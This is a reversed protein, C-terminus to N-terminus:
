QSDRCPQAEFHVSRRSRRSAPIMSGNYETLFRAECHTAVCVEQAPDDGYLSLSESCDGVVGPGVLARRHSRTPSCCMPDNQGPQLWFLALRNVVPWAPRWIALDIAQMLLSRGFRMPMWYLSYWATVPGRSLSVRDGVAVRAGDYAQLDSQMDLTSDRASLDFGQM